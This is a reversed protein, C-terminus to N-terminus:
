EKEARQAIWNYLIPWILMALSDKVLWLAGDRGYSSRWGGQQLRVAGHLMWSACAVELSWILISDVSLFSCILGLLSASFIACSIAWM